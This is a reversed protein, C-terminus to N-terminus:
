LLKKKKRKKKKKKKIEAEAEAQKVLYAVREFPTHGYRLHNHLASQMGNCLPCRLMTTPETM